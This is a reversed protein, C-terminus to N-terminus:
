DSSKLSRVVREQVREIDQATWTAQNEVELLVGREDYYKLLPDYDASSQGSTLHLALNVGNLYRDLLLAQNTNFPFGYVLVGNALSDNPTQNLETAM